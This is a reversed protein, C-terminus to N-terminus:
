SHNKNEKNPKGINHLYKDTVKGYSFSGPILATKHTCTRKSPNYTGFDFTM